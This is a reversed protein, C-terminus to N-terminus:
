KVLISCSAADIVQGIVAAHAYNERLRGLLEDSSAPPASILMGGATQPDYLLKILDPDLSSSISVDDGIYERNSRDGSTLM